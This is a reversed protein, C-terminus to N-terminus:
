IPIINFGIPKLLETFNRVVLLVFRFLNFLKIMYYLHVCDYLACSRSLQNLNTYGVRHSDTVTGRENVWGIVTVILSLLRQEQLFLYRM